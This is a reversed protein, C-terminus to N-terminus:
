RSRKGGRSRRGGQQAQPKAATDTKAADANPPKPQLDKENRKIGERNNWLFVFNLMMTTLDTDIKNRSQGVKSDNGSVFMYAFIDTVLKYLSFALYRYFCNSMRDELKENDMNLWKAVSNVKFYAHGDATEPIRMWICGLALVNAAYYFANMTIFMNKNEDSNIDDPNVAANISLGLDTVTQCIILIYIVWFIVTETKFEFFPQPRVWAMLIYLLIGYVIMRTILATGIWGSAASSGGTIAKKINDIKFNEISLGKKFMDKMTDIFTKEAGGIIFTEVSGDDNQVAVEDGAEAQLVQEVQGNNNVVVVEKKNTGEIDNVIVQGNNTNQTGSNIVQVTNGQSNTTVGNSPVVVNADVKANVSNGQEDVVVVQQTNANDPNDIGNSIEGNKAQIVSVNSENNVVQVNGQNDVVAVEVPGNVAVENTQNASLQDNNTLSAATSAINNELSGNISNSDNNLELVVTNNPM